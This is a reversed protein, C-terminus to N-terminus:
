LGGLAGCLMLEDEEDRLRRLREARIEAATPARPAPAPVVAATRALARAKSNSRAGSWGGLEPDPVTPPDNEVQLGEGAATVIVTASSGGTAQEAATGAGAATIVVGASSGGSFYEPAAEADFFDASLIEGAPGNDWADAGGSPPRGESQPSKLGM